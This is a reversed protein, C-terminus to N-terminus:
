KIAELVNDGCERPHDAKDTGIEQRETIIGASAPTIGKYM